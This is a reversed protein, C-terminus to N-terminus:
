TELYYKIFILLCSHFQSWYRALVIIIVADWRKMMWSCFFRQALHWSSCSFCCCSRFFILYPEWNKRWQTFYHSVVFCKTRMKMSTFHLSNLNSVKFLTGFMTTLMIIYQGYSSFRHFFSMFITLVLSNEIDNFLVTM